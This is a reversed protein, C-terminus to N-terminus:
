QVPPSNWPLFSGFTQVSWGLQVPRRWLYYLDVQRQTVSVGLGMGAKYNNMLLDYMDTNAKGYPYAFTEVPVSLLNELVRRSEKMEWEAKDSKTLDV